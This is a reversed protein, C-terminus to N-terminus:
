AAPAADEIVFQVDDRGQWTDPRLRGALHLTQGGAAQLLAEGLSSDGTEGRTDGLARFAIAKLRAGDGSLFCRVHDGGVIDAKAIRAGMLAFRPEPNGIGFPEVRAIDAMLDRSAGAVALVGDISLEPETAAAAVQGALRDNLFDRLEGIRDAAVTFGAAMKHGGGNVLLDAQRAAIVASGLDVGTISRGSGKGVGDAVGVVCVPRRLREVLRSAVIGIVGPHWGAGDILVVPCGAGAAGGAAAADLAHPLAAELVDAEIARRETNYADLREALVRAQGPDECTLLQAGLGAEGVRGGANVRPGLLFGLHWARPPENLRAVDALAAMGPHGRAALVKLGQAVLIRNVGTLPVVDAVTGLAVVDLLAVLGPEGGDGFRGRRRLERNLAVVLLFTVGVAALQTHPSPDDLRNPNVVAVAAPLGPEAVHHDVVIVDLGADAAAALPEFATIGCDVTIVVQAGEAKLRLLAPTNPGYGEAQRDPVYIDIAVGLAAFYRQLVAASTAGDVDYDGFVAIQEGKEVADALRAAAKEMDKLHGPDPLQTKLSPDLFAPAAEATVDRAALVRGVIEPVSLSQALMLGARDDALRARWRRGTLSREVGLITPHDAVPGPPANM